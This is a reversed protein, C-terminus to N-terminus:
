LCVPPILATPYTSCYLQTDDAYCHFSVHKCFIDGPFTFILLLLPGLVSCQSVGSTVIPAKYSHSNIIYYM